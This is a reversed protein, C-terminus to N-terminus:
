ISEQDKLEVSSIALAKYTYLETTQTSSNLPNDKITFDGWFLYYEEIELSASMEKIETETGFVWCQTLQGEMGLVFHLNWKNPDNTNQRPETIDTIQGYVPKKTRKGLTAVSVPIDKDM